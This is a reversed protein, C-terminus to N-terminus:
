SLSAKSLVFSAMINLMLKQRYDSTESPSAGTMKEGSCSLVAVAPFGVFSSHSMLTPLAAAARLHHTVNGDCIPTLGSFRARGVSSYEIFAANHLNDSNRHVFIYHPNLLFSTKTCRQM